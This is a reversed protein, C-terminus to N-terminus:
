LDPEPQLLLLAFKNYFTKNGFVERCQVATENWNATTPLIKVIETKKGVSCSWGHQLYETSIGTKHLDEAPLYATGNMHLTGVRWEIISNCRNITCFTAWLGKAVTISELHDTDKRSISYAM